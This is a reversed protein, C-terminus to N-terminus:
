TRKQPVVFTAPKESESSIEELTWFHRAFKVEWLAVDNFIQKRCLKFWDPQERRVYDKLMGKYINGPSDWRKAITSSDHVDGNPLPDIEDLRDAAIKAAAQITLKGNKAHGYAIMMAM